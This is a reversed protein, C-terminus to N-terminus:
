AHSHIRFLNKSFKSQAVSSLCCHGSHDPTSRSLRSGGNSSPSWYTSLFFNAKRSKKENHFFFLFSCIVSNTPLPAESWFTPFWFHQVFGTAERSEKEM